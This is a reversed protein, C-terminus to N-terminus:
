HDCDDRQWAQNRHKQRHKRHAKRHNHRGEYGQEYYAPPRYRAPYWVVPAPAYGYGHGGWVVDVGLRVQPGSSYRDDASASNGALLGLLAVVGLLKAQLM